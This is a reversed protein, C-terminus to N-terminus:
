NSERTNALNPRRFRRWKKRLSHNAAGSSYPKLAAFLVSHGIADTGIIRSFAPEIRLVSLDHSRTWLGVPGTKTAEQRLCLLGPRGCWINRGLTNVILKGSSVATQISWRQIAEIIYSKPVWNFKGVDLVIIIAMFITEM